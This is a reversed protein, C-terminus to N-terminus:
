IKEGEVPFTRGPLRVLPGDPTIKLVDVVEGSPLALLVIIAPERESVQLFVAVGERIQPPEDTEQPGHESFQQGGNSPRGETAPPSWGTASLARASADQWGDGSPHRASSPHM